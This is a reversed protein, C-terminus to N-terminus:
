MTILLLLIGDHWIGIELGNDRERRGLSKLNIHILHINPPRPLTNEGVAERGFCGMRAANAKLRFQAAAIIFGKGIVAFVGDAADDGPPRRGGQAIGPAAGVPAAPTKGRGNSKARLAPAARELPAGSFRTKAGRNWPRLAPMRGLGGPKAAHASRRRAPPAAPWLFNMGALDAPSHARIAAPPSLM